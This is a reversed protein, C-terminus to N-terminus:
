RPAPNWDQRTMMAPNSDQGVPRPRRRCLIGGLAAGGVGLLIWSTPEPATLPKISTIQAEILLQSPAGIVPIAGGANYNYFLSGNDFHTFDLALNRLSFDPTAGPDVSKTMTFSVELYSSSTSQKADLGFSLFSGPLYQSPLYKGYTLAVPVPGNGLPVGNANFAISANATPYSMGIESANSYPVGAASNDFRITGNMLMGSSLGPVRHGADDFLMVQATFSYTLVDAPLRGAASLLGLLTLVHWPKM